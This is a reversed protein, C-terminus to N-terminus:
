GREGMEVGKKGGGDLVGEMRKRSAKNFDGMTVPGMVPSGAALSSSQLEAMFKLIVDGDRDSIGVGGNCSRFLAYARAHYTPAAFAVPPMVTAAPRPELTPPAVSPSALRGDPSEHTPLFYPLLPPSGGGWDAAGDFADAGGADDPPNPGM